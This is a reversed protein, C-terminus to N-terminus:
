ENICMPFSTSVKWSRADSKSLHFNESQSMSRWVDLAADKDCWKQQREENFYENRKVVYFKLVGDIM